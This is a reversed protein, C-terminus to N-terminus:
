SQEGNETSYSSNRVNQDLDVQFNFNKMNSLNRLEDQHRCLIDKQSAVERHHNSAETKEDGGIINVMEHDSIDFDVNGWSEVNTSNALPILEGSGSAYLSLSSSMDQKTDLATKAYTKLSNASKHGSVCM